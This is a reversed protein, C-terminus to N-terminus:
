QIIEEGDGLLSQIHRAQEDTLVGSKRLADALPKAEKIPKRTM